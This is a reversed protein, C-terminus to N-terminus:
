SPYFCEHIYECNHPKNGINREMETDDAVLLRM